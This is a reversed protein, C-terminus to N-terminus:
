FVGIIESANISADGKVRVVIWNISTDINIIDVIM